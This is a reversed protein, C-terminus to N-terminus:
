TAPLTLGLLRAANGAFVLKLDDDGVGLQRCAAMQVELYRQAFGRPFWSSDTGFIIRQPGVTDLFKQFLGKLDLPYPMWRMWENSGSTDVYVNGCVWMLHLLERPYGCGFHPVIFPVGPFARAVDQLALPSINPGAVIGQYRLPGFHVLVPIGLREATEWLPYLREDDLRGSLLPAILKYGRLGLTDVARRLEEPAGPEFPDHHAFGVFMGPNTRVIAALRDNGGGTVFVVRVLRHRAVEEAWRRAMERDDSPPEPAPFGWVRRWAEQDAALHRQLMAWKPEGFRAVYAARTPDDEGAARGAPFHAHFDLVPISATV